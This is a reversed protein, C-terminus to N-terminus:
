GAALNAARAKDGRAARIRLAHHLDSCIFSVVPQKFENGSM